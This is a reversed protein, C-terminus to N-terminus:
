VKRKKSNKTSEKEIINMAKDYAGQILGAFEEKKEGITGKMDTYWDFVMAGRELMSLSDWYFPEINIEQCFKGTLQLLRIPNYLVTKMNREGFEFYMRFFMTKGQKVYYDGHTSGQGVSKKKFTSIVLHNPFDRCRIHDIKTCWYNTSFNNSLIRNEPVETSIGKEPVGDIYIRYVSYEPFNKRPGIKKLEMQKKM